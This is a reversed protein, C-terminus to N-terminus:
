IHILSLYVAHGESNDFSSLAKESLVESVSFDNENQKIKGNVSPYTTTYVSIGIDRDIQPIM